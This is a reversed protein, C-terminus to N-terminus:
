RRIQPLAGITGVGLGFMTARQLFEQRDLEGAVLEDILNNELTGAEERRYQEIQRRTDREM